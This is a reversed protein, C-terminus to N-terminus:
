RAAAMMGQDIDICEQVMRMHEMTASIVHNNTLKRGNATSALYFDDASVHLLRRARIIAKGAKRRSPYPGAIGEVADVWYYTRM